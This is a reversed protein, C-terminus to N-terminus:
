NVTNTFIDIINKRWEEKIDNIHKNIIVGFKGWNYGTLLAEPAQNWLNKIFDNVDEKFKIQDDPILKYIEEAIIIVNRPKYEEM